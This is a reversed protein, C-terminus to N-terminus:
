AAFNTVKAGVQPLKVTPLEVQSPLSATELVDIAISVSVLYSGPQEGVTAAVLKALDPQEATIPHRLSCREWDHKANPNIQLIYHKNMTFFRYTSDCNSLKNYYM